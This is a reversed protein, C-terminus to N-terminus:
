INPNRRSPRIMNLTLQAQDLLRDRLNTPFLKDTGSLVSLFSEEMDM